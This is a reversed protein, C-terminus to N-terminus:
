LILCWDMRNQKPKFTIPPPNNKLENLNWEQEDLVRSLEDSRKRLDEITEGTAIEFVQPDGWQALWKLYRLEEESGKPPTKRRGLLSQKYKACEECVIAICPRNISGAYPDIADRGCENQCKIYVANTPEIRNKSRAGKWTERCQVCTLFDDESSKLRRCIICEEESM